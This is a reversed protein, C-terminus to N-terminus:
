EYQHNSPVKILRNTEPKSFRLLIYASDRM